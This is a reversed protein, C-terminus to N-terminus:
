TKNKDPISIEFNDACENRPADVEFANPAPTDSFYIM